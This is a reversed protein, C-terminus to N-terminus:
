IGSSSLSDVALKLPAELARLSRSLLPPEHQEPLDGLVDLMTRLLDYTTVIGCAVEERTVILASIHKDLMQTVAASLSASEEITEIPSSMFDQVTYAANFGAEIVEADGGRKIDVRMGRQVDRDSLIGVIRGNDLVPLHRIDYTRMLENAQALTALPEITVLSHTIVSELSAM